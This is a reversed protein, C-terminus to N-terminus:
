REGAGGKQFFKEFGIAYNLLTKGMDVPAKGWENWIVQYSEALSQPLLKYAVSTPRFGLEVAIQEITLGHGENFLEAAKEVDDDTWRHGVRCKECNFAPLKERIRCGCIRKSEAM